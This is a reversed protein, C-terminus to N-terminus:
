KQTSRRGDDAITLFDELLVQANWALRGRVIWEPDRALEALTAAATAANGAVQKRM